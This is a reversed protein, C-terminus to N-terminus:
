VGNLWFYLPSSPPKDGFTKEREREREARENNAGGDPSSRIRAGQHCKCLYKTTRFIYYLLSTLQTTKRLSSYRTLEARESMEMSVRSQLTAVSFCKGGKKLHFSHFVKITMLWATMLPPFNCKIVSEVGHPLNCKVYNMDSIVVSSSCLGASDSPTCVHTKPYRSLNCARFGIQLLKFVNITKKEGLNM